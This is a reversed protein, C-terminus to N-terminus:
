RSVNEKAEIDSIYCLTQQHRHAEIEQTWRQETGQSKQNNQIAAIPSCQIRSEQM